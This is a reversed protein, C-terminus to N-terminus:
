SQYGIENAIDVLAGLFPDAAPLVRAALPVVYREIERLYAARVADDPNLCLIHLNDMKDAVKVQAVHSPASAVGGYYDQLYSDDSQRARDITLTEVWAHIGPVVADIERLKATAETAGVEILNHCMALAAAPLSAEESFGRLLIVTRLPHALYGEKSLGPHSYDLSTVVDWIRSLLDRDEPRTAALVDGLYRDLTESSGNRMDDIRQARGQAIREAMDDPVTAAQRAATDNATMLFVPM